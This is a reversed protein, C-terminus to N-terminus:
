KSASREGPVPEETTGYEAIREARIVDRLRVEVAGLEVARKRRGETLDYHHHRQKPSDMRQRWAYKLGLRGAFAHLEHDSDAWMHCNAGLGWGRDQLEDVYVSM